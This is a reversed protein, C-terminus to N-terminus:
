RVDRSMAADKARGRFVYEEGQRYELLNAPVRITLRKANRGGYHRGEEPDLLVYDGPRVIPDAYDPVWRHAYVNQDGILASLLDGPALTGVATPITVGAFTRPAHHAHYHVSPKGAPHFSVPNRAIEEKCHECRAM